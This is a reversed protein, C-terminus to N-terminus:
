GASFSLDLLLLVGCVTRWVSLADIAELGVSLGTNKTVM